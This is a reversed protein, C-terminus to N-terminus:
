SDVSSAGASPEIGLCLAKKKGKQDNVHLRCAEGSPDLGPLIMLPDSVRWPPITHISIQLTTSENTIPLAGCAVPWLDLLRETITDWWARRSERLGPRRVLAEKRFCNRTSGKRILRLALESSSSILSAVRVNVDLEVVCDSRICRTM